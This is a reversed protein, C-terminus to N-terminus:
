RRYSVSLVAREFAARLASLESGTVERLVRLGTADVGVRERYARYYDRLRGERQLYWLLYRATAYYLSGDKGDFDGRSGTVLRHFSPARGSRIAQQLEPLRWNINGELHGGIDRPAEFLSALGEQMWVPAEPFDADMYAHVLEHVLTGWGYGANVVLARSCPRYFGYPTTPIIGLVASSGSRYSAEDYYVWITLPKGPEKEFFDARLRDRAWTITQTADERLDAGGYAMVVFPSVLASEYGHGAREEQARRERQLEASSVPVQSAGVRCCGTLVAGVFLARVRPSVIPM